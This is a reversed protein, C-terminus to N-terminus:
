GMVIAQHTTREGVTGSGAWSGTGAGVRGLVTSYHYGESFTNALQLSVPTTEGHRSQNFVDQPTAGDVGISTVTANAGTNECAGTVSFKVPEDAWTLWDPYSPSSLDVYSTSTTTVTSSFSSSAIREKRNFYSLVLRDTTSDVWFPTPLGVSRAMGVLTRTADGTKIEVGTTTDTSHGTTSRELTLVGSSLYAYIFYTTNNSTGSNSLTVGASPITVVQGNIVITNGNYPTLILATSSQFSLRCRGHGPFDSTIPNVGSRSRGTVKWDTGGAPLQIAWNNLTGISVATSAGEITDSGGRTVTLTNTTSDLRRINYIADDTTAGSTPLTLAVNGGTCDVLVLGCNQVTLTTDSTITARDTEQMGITRFAAVIGTLFTKLQAGSLTTGNVSALTPTKSM